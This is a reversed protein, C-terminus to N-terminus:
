APKVVRDKGQWNNSTSLDAVGSQKLYLFLQMRYATLWAFPMTMIGHGLTFIEGNPHKVEMNLFDEEAFSNIMRTIEAIQEDMAALFESPQLNAQNEMYPKWLKWDSGNIFIHLPAKGCGAIYRLLEIMSRQSESPRFDFKDAPIKGFLHKINNCEKVMSTIM